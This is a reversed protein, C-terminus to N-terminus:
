RQVYGDWKVMKGEEFYATVTDFSEWSRANALGVPSQPNFIAQSRSGYSRRFTLVDLRGITSTGTPAGLQLVVEERSRGMLGDMLTSLEKKREAVQTYACGALFLLLVVAFRPM